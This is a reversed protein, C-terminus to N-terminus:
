GAAGLDDGPVLAGVRALVEDEVRQVIQRQELLLGAGEVLGCRQLAPVQGLRERGQAAQELGAHALGALPFVDLNQPQELGEPELVDMRRHALREPQARDAVIGDLM